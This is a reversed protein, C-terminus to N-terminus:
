ALLCCTHWCMLCQYKGCHRAFYAWNLRRIWLYASASAYVFNPHLHFICVLYYCACIWFTKDSPTWSQCRKKKLKHPSPPDLYWWYLRAIMPGGAFRWKSPTESIHWLHGLMSHQSPLRTITWPIRVLIVFFFKYKQSKEPPTRVGTGGRSGRVLLGRTGSLM